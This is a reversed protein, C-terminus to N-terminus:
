ASSFRELVMTEAREGPKECSKDDDCGDGTEETPNRALRHASFRSRHM